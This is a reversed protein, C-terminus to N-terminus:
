YGVISFGTANLSPSTSTVLFEATANREAAGMVSYMSCSKQQFATTFHFCIEYFEHHLPALFITIM